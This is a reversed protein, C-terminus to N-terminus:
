DNNGGGSYIESIINELEQRDIVSSLAENVAKRFNELALSKRVGDSQIRDSIFSGKGVLSYIYGDKELMSYAKAVTNPNIGLQSALSRVTPLNDNAKLAGFAIYRVVQKYLQEYIPQGSALDLNFM